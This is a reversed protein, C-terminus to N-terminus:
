VKTFNGLLYEVEQLTLELEWWWLDPDQSSTFGFNPIQPHETSNHYKAIYEQLQIHNSDDWVCYTDGAVQTALATLSVVLMPHLFSAASGPKSKFIM